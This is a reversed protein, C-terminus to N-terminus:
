IFEKKKMLYIISDTIEDTSLTMVNFSVDFFNNFDKKQSLSEKLLNRKQDIETAYKRMEELTRGRKQAAMEIRWEFPAHLKIHLSKPIDRSIIVGGMGIIINNGKEAFSRVVEIIKNKIKADSTYYKESTSWIISEIVNMRKGEFIHKIRNEKLNLAKATNEFIEKNIWAWNKKNNTLNNLKEVLNQSLEKASCGYERSITIVPGQLSSESISGKYKDTLYKKLNIRM